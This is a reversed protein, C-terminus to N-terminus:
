QLGIEAGAMHSLAPPEITQVLEGGFIRENQFREAHCLFLGLTADENRKKAGHIWIGPLRLSNSPRFDLTRWGRQPDGINGFLFCEIKRQIGLISSLHGKQKITSVVEYGRKCLM